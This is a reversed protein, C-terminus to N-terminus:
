DQSMMLRILVNTKMVFHQVLAGAVHLLILVILVNKAASHAGAAAEVGLFWAVAGSIPMGIILAYILFHTAHAVFKLAPHEQAPLAPAGRTFRLYLRWLALVFITAGVVIHAYAFTVDGSEIERGRSYANWMHEMGDHALINFLVLVAVTWHLMIQTSSYGAPSKATM